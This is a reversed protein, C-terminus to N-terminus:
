SSVGGSKQTKLSFEFVANHHVYRGSIKINSKDKKDNTRKNVSLKSDWGNEIIIENKM